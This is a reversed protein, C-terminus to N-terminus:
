AGSAAYGEYLSYTNGISHLLSRICPYTTRCGRATSDFLCSDHMSPLMSLSSLLTFQITLLSTSQFGAGQHEVLVSPYVIHRNEHESGRM